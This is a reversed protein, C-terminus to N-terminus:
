ILSMLTDPNPRRITGNELQQPTPDQIKKCVEFCKELDARIFEDVIEAAYIPLMYGNVM